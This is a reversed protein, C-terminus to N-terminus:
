SSSSDAGAPPTPRRMSGRQPPAILPPLQDAIPELRARMAENGASGAFDFSFESEHSSAWNFSWGMRQRYALLTDIPARSVCIMTVDRANLHSVLPGFADGISPGDETQLTYDEDVAVWPPERRQAALEDGLRTLEKERKLVGGRAADWEERTVIQHATM